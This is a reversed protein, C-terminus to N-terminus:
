VLDAFEKEMRRFKRIGIAFFCVSIVVSLLIGEMYMPQEGKLLSWRFGDIVAVMPNLYYLLKFKEPIISSNFGVPSVYLGFQIIFPVIFRFDRYKVNLSTVYLGIGITFVMSLLLFLPTLLIQWHPWFGYVAFLLIMLALAILFDILSTIITACPIIIRPFYVKTILGSNSLLSNSVDSLSSSFFQWPLMAAYVMLPYPVDKLSTLKMVKNFLLTFIIMTLLPRLVSWLFGLITQKYRVQIDRLALIFFLERYKWIDKWYHIETKKPEIILLPKM